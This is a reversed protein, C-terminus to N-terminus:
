SQYTKHLTEWYGKEDNKVILSYLPDDKTAKEFFPMVGTVMCFLIVGVAFVDTTNGKYPKGELIEPAM